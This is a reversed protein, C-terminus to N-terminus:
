FKNTRGVLNAIVYAWYEGTSNPIIVASSGVYIKQIYRNENLSYEYMDYFSFTRNRYDITGQTILVRDDSPIITKMWFDVEDLNYNYKLTLTDVYTTEKDDSSLWYWRSNNEAYVTSLMMIFILFFLMCIKKM